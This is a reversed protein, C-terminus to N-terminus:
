RIKDTSAQKSLSDALSNLNRPIERIEWSTASLVSDLREQLDEDFGRGSRVKRVVHDNDCRVSINEEDNLYSIAEEVGYVVALLEGRNVRESHGGGCEDTVNRAGKELMEIQEGDDDIREIAYGVGVSENQKVSADTSVVVESM